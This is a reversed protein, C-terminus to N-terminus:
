VKGRYDAVMYWDPVQEATNKANFTQVYERAEAESDFYVSANLKSGWGREYEAIDVRYANVKIQSM